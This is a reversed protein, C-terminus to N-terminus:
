IDNIGIKECFRTSIRERMSVTFIAKQIHTNPRSSDLGEIWSCRLADITKISVNGIRRYKRKRKKNKSLWGSVTILFLHSSAYSNM